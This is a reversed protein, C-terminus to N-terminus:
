SVADAQDASATEDDPPLMADCPWNDHVTCYPWAQWWIAGFRQSNNTFVYCVPEVSERDAVLCYCANM